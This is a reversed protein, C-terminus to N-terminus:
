GPRLRRGGYPTSIRWQLGPVHMRSGRGKEAQVRRDHMCRLTSKHVSSADAHGPYHRHDNATLEPRFHLHSRRGPHVQQVQDRRMGSGRGNDLLRQHQLILGHRALGRFEPDRQDVRLQAGLSGHVHLQRLPRGPNARVSAVPPSARRSASRSRAM